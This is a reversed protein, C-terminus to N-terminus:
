YHYQALHMVWRKKISKQLLEHVVNMLSNTQLQTPSRQEGEQNKYLPATNAKMGLDQSKGQRLLNILLIYLPTKLEQPCEQLVLGSIQDHNNMKKEDLREM